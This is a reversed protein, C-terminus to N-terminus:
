TGSDGTLASNALVNAVFTDFDGHTQPEGIELAFGAPAGGQGTLHLMDGARAFVASAEEHRGHNAANIPTLAFWTTEHRLFQVGERVDVIAGPATLIWFPADGKDTLYIALNRYQAVNTNGADSTVFKSRSVEKGKKLEKDINHGIALYDVGRESNFTTAKFGSVDGGNGFPLSGFRYTHGIMFTEHFDQVDRGSRGSDDTKWNEYTPHSILMEVPTAIHGQALQVAAMPPRYSSTIHHLDDRDGACPLDLDDFYLHGCVIANARMAMINGYDRKVAGAWGGRWYKVAMTTSIWDLIGKAHARVQPIKPSIM